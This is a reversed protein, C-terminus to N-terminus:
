DEALMLNIRSELIKALDEASKQGLFYYPAEESVLALIASNFPDVSKISDVFALYDERYPEYASTKYATDNRGFWDVQWVAANRNLPIGYVYTGFHDLTMTQMEESLFFKCIDWAIDPYESTASISMCHDISAQLIGNDEPHGIIVQPEKSELFLNAYYQISCISTENLVFTKDHLREWTEEDYLAFRNTYELATYFADNELDVAGTTPDIFNEISHGMYYALDQSPRLGATLTFGEPLTDDLAMFDTLTWTDIGALLSEPGYMVGISFALPLSFLRGDIRSADVINWYYDDTSFESDSAITSTLDIFAIEENVDFDYPTYFYIDAADSTLIDLYLQTTGRDYGYEKFYDIVKIEVEPHAEEYTRCSTMLYSSESFPEEIIGCGAITIVTKAKGDVTETAPADISAQILTFIQRDDTTYQMVFYLDKTLVSTRSSAYTYDFDSDNWRFVLVDEQKAFDYAFIGASNYFFLGDKGASLEASSSPQVNFAQSFDSVGTIVPLYKFDAAVTPIGGIDYLLIEREYDNSFVKSGDPHFCTVATERAIYIDGNPAGVIMPQKEVPQIAITVTEKLPNGDRDVTYLYIDGYLIRDNADNQQVIGSVICIQDPAPSFFEYIIDEPRISIPSSTSLVNGLRDYFILQCADALRSLVVIDDGCMSVNSFFFEDVSLTDMPMSRGSIYKTYNTTLDPVTLLEASSCSLLPSLVAFLLVVVSVTKFIRIRM